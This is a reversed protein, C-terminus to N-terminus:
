NHARVSAVVVKSIHVESKWTGVHKKQDIAVLGDHAIAFVNGLMRVMEMGVCDYGRGNAYKM